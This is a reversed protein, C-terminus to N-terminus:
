DIVAQYDSASPGFQEAFQEPTLFQRFHPSNPDYIQQLLNSLASQNRLPLAIALNLQNTDSLHSIPALRTTAWPQNAHVVQLEAGRAAFGLLLTAATLVFLPLFGLHRNDWLSSKAHM